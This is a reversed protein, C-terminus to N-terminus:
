PRSRHHARPRFGRRPSPRVEVRPSLPETISGTTGAIALAADALLAASLAIAAILHGRTAQRETWDEAVRQPQM